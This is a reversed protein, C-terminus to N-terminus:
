HAELYSKLNSLNGVEDEMNKKIMGDVLPKGEIDESPMFGEPYRKGPDIFLRPRYVAQSLDVEGDEDEPPLELVGSYYENQGTILGTFLEIMEQQFVRYPNIPTDNSELLPGYKAM